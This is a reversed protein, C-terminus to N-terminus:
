LILLAIFPTTKWVDAIVIASRAPWQSSTWQYHTGLLKNLIGEPDFVVGWLKATVATPIAWPILIAARVLARGQFSRSSRLAVLMFALRSEGTKIKNRKPAPPAQSTSAVEANEAAPGALTM